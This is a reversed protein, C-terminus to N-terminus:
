ATPQRTILIPNSTSYDNLLSGRCSTDAALFLESKQKAAQAHTVQPFLTKGEKLGPNIDKAFVWGVSTALLAVLVLYLTGMLLRKLAPVRDYDRLQQPKKRFLTLVMPLSLALLLIAAPAHIFWVFVALLCWGPIWLWRSLVTAIHGGDMAGLPILNFLNLFLAILCLEAFYFSGNLHHMWLCAFAGLSGLIPGAIGIVAEHWATTIKGRINIIAGVYPVFIPVSVKVRYYRAALLHGVEHIALLAIYGVALNWGLSSAYVAISILMSGITWVLPPVGGLAKSAEIVALLGKLCPFLFADRLAEGIRQLRTKRRERIWDRVSENKHTQFSLESQLLQLSRM